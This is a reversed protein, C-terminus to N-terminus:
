PNSSKRAEINSITSRALSSCVRPLGDLSVPRTTWVDTLIEVMLERRSTVTHSGTGPNLLTDLPAGHFSHADGIDTWAGKIAQSSLLHVQDWQLRNEMKAATYYELLIDMAYAHLNCVSQRIFEGMLANYELQAKFLLATDDDLALVSLDPYPNVESLLPIDRPLKPFRSSANTLRHTRWVELMRQRTKTSDANWIRMAETATLPLTSAPTAPVPNTTAPSTLPTATQRMRLPTFDRSYSPRYLLSRPEPASTSSRSTEESALPAAEEDDEEDDLYNRNDRSDDNTKAEDIRHSM